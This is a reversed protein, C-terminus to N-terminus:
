MAKIIRNAASKYLRNKVALGYGEDDTFEAFVIDAGMRDFERLARFLRKAYERNDEGAYLVVDTEYEYGLSFVGVCKDKNEAILEKVKKIRAEKEGEVVYVEANPAYHKYKMGPCKPTEKASVMELVHKDVLAEPIVKKIDGLTIGGPRLIVPREGTMDIVTSEVGVECDCGDIIADIRGQMDENVDKFTTPSPKGSINASPAAIPRKAAKIFARATNNSPIRVAVTDLGATVANGVCEKKKLIVTLPGPSFNEFLLKAADTVFCVESIDEVDAFHVILPNDGPRGKAAFIKKVADENLADAGLGYVTETPFAVLGGNRIITGMEEMSKADIKNDDIKFIKTNMM